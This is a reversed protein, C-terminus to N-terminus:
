AVRSSESNPRKDLNDMLDVDIELLKHHKEVDNVNKGFLIQKSM